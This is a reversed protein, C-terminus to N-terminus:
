ELNNLIIKKKSICKLAYIRKFKDEVCFVEGMDGQGLKFKITLDSLELGEIYKKKSENMALIESKPFPKKMLVSLDNGLIKSIRSFSIKVIKGEGNKKM